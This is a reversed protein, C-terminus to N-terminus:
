LLQCIDDIRNTYTHYKLAHEKGAVAIQDREAKKTPRTWYHLLKTAEGATDFYIKGVGEPFLEECGAFRKAISFGGNCAIHFYRASSYKYVDWIQSSELCVKATSYISPMQAYLEMRKDLSQENLWTFPFDIQKFLEYREKLPGSNIEGGIFVAPLFTYPTEILEGEFGAQGAYYSPVHQHKEWLNLLGANSQLTFDIVGRLDWTPFGGLREDRLDACWYARKAAKAQKMVDPREFPDNIGWILLDLDDISNIQELVQDTGLVRWDIPYYEIGLERMGISIGKWHTCEPELTQAGVLAVKM